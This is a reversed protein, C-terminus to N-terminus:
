LKRRMEEVTHRLELRIGAPGTPYRIPDDIFRSRDQSSLFVASQLFRRAFWVLDEGGPAPFIFARATGRRGRESTM